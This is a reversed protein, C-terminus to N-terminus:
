RSIIYIMYAGYLALLSGGEIRNIKKGRVAFVCLILSMVLLVVGDFISERQIAMPSIAASAGIILLVNFINSGIVNGMALDNEGKVSAVVSTVLEPLSTGMAVITLGILTQSMGFAAAIESASDVVLNGGVIIMALGIIGLLVSIQPSHKKGISEEEPRVERNGLASRIQWYLFGAFILLLLVGELRNVTFGASGKGSFFLCFAVLVGTVLISFPMEKKLIGEQIKMPLVLGCVGIVVLSNFLNSGIVNSIAIDNNGALSATISVAAEPASTGFAVITLGIIISPVRLAKAISSCGDVFFDAGKVLCVFGLLLWVYMM